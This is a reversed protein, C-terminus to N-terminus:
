IMNDHSGAHVFCRGQTKDKSEGALHSIKGRTQQIKLLDCRADPESSLPRKCGLDLAAPATRLAYQLYPHFPLRFRTRNLAGSLM